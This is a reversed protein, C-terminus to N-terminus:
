MAAVRQPTFSSSRWNEYGDGNPSSYGIPSGTLKYNRVYQPTNLVLVLLPLLLLQWARRSVPRRRIAAVCALLIAPAFIYTTGKTLAALGLALGALVSDSMRPEEARAWRLLFVCAAALWLTATWDNKAGSAALVGEPLTVCLLASVLQARRNGGFLKAILSVAIISGGFSLWQVLNSFRDDGALMYLHLITWEALPPYFLQVLYHTPFLGTSQRLIWESVRPMHYDMVDGTNPPSIVATLGTALLTGVIGLLCLWEVPDLRKLANSARDQVRLIVERLRDWRLMMWALCVGAAAAWVTVVALPTFARGASLSETTATVYCACVIASILISIRLGLPKTSIIALVM